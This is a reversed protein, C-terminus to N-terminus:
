YLCRRGSCSLVSYLKQSIFREGSDFGNDFILRAGADLFGNLGDITHVIGNVTNEAVSSSMSGNTIYDWIEDLNRLALPSYQIKHNM